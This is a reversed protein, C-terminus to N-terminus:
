RSQERGLPDVNMFLMNWSPGAGIYKWEWTRLNVTFLLPDLDDRHTEVLALDSAPDVDVVSHNGLLLRGVSHWDEGENGSEFVDCAGQGRDREGSRIWGCLYHSNGRSLLRIPFGATIHSRALVRDPNGVPAIRTEAGESWSLFPAGSKDRTVGGTKLTMGSAFSFVDQERDYQGLVAGDDDVLVEDSPVPIHRPRRGRELILLFTDTESRGSGRCVEAGGASGDLRALSPRAVASRYTHLFARRGALDRFPDPWVGVRECRQLVAGLAATHDAYVQLRPVEGSRYEHAFSCATTLLVVLGALRRM